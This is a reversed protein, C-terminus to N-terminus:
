YNWVFRRNFSAPDIEFSSSFRVESKYTKGESEAPLWEMRFLKDKFSLNAKYELNNIVYNAVYKAQGNADVMALFDATVKAKGSREKPPIQDKLEEELLRKFQDVSCIPVPIRASNAINPDKDIVKIELGAIANQDLSLLKNATYNYRLVMKGASNFAYWDGSRKNDKYSGRLRTVNAADEIIFAGELKKDETINYTVKSQDVLKGTKEVSLVLLTTLGALLSTALFIKM